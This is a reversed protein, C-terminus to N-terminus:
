CSFITCILPTSIKQPIISATKSGCNIVAVMPNKSTPKPTLLMTGSIKLVAAFAGLMGLPIAIAVTLLIPKKPNKIPGGKIPYIAWNAPSCYEKIVIANKPKPILKITLLTFSIPYSIYQKIGQRM